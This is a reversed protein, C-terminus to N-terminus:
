QKRPASEYVHGGRRVGIQEEGLDQRIALGVEHRVALALADGVDGKDVKCLDELADLLNYAPLTDLVHEFLLAVLHGDIYRIGHM